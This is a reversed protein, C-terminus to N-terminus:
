NSTSLKARTMAGIFGTQPLALEKQLKIAATKTLMGFYGSAYQSALYGKQILFLQFARVDDGHAGVSLNRILTVMPAKVQTHPLPINVPPTVVVPSIVVPSTTSPVGLAIETVPSVSAAAAAKAALAQKVALPADPTGPNGGNYLATVDGQTLPRAYIRFDDLYGDFVGNIVGSELSGIRYSFTHNTFDPFWRGINYGAVTSAEGNVFMQYNQGSATLVLQYWENKNLITTGQVKQDAGDTTTRFQLQPRGEHDIMLAAYIHTDLTSRASFIINRDSLSNVKLWLVISGQSGSLFGDPLVVSEGQTGDMGLATGVVGSAFGFGTSTGTLNGNKGGMSDAATQGTGENFTFYNTSDNTVAAFTLPASFFLAAGALLSVYTFNKM